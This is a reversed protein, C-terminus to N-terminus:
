SGMDFEYVPIDDIKKRTNSVGELFVHHYDNTVEIMDNALVAIDLWTPNEAILSQYDRSKDGGFFEDKYGVLICKGKIAVDDLNNIPDDYDGKYASYIVDCNKNVGRKKCTTSITYEMKDLTDM